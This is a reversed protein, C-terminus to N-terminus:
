GAAPGGADIRLLGAPMTLPRLANTLPYGGTGVQAVNAEASQASAVGVLGTIGVLAVLAVWSSVLQRTSSRM